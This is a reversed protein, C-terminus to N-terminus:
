SGYPPRRPVPQWPLSGVKTEDDVGQERYLYLSYKTAFRTHETDFDNLRAYSPRMYSMRCGKPDIQRTVSSNLVTMLLGVGVLSAALSFITIAWPSRLRPRRGANRSDPAKEM